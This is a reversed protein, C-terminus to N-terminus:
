PYNNCPCYISGILGNRVRVICAAMVLLSCFGHTQPVFASGSGDNPMNLLVPYYWLHRVLILFCTVIGTEILPLLWPPFFLSCCILNGSDLIYLQLKMYSSTALWAFFLVVASREFNAQHKWTAPATSFPCLLM